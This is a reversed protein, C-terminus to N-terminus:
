DPEDHFDPVPYVFKHYSKPLQLMEFIGELSDSIDQQLEAVNEPTVGEGCLQSLAQLFERYHIEVFSWAYVLRESEHSDESSYRNVYPCEELRKALRVRRDMDSLILPSVAANQGSEM